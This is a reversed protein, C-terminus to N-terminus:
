GVHSLWMHDRNKNFTWKKPVTCLDLNGLGMDMLLDLGIEFVPRFPCSDQVLLLPPMQGNRPKIGICLLAHYVRDKAEEPRKNLIDINHNALKGKYQLREKDALGPFCEICFVFPRGNNL